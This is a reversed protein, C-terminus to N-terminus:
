YKDKPGGPVVGTGDGLLVVTLTCPSLMHKNFIIMQTHTYLLTNLIMIQIRLKITKMQLTSTFKNQSRQRECHQYSQLSHLLIQLIVCIEIYLCCM